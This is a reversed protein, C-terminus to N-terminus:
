KLTGKYPTETHYQPTETYYQPTETYYKLIEVHLQTAEGINSQATALQIPDSQATASLSDIGVDHFCNSYM